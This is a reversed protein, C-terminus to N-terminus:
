AVSDSAWKEISTSHSRLSTRRRSRGFANGVAIGEHREASELGHRIGDVAHQYDLQRQLSGIQRELASLRKDIQGLTM